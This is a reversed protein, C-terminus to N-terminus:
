GVDVDINVTINKSNNEKGPNKEIWNLLILTILM